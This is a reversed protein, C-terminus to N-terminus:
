FSKIGVKIEFLFEELLGFLFNKGLAPLENPISIGYFFFTPHCGHVQKLIENVLGQHDRPIFVFFEVTEGIHTGMSAVQNHLAGAFEIINTTFVVTASKMQIPLKKGHRFKFLYFIKRSWCIIKMLKWKM